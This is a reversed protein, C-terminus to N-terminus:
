SGGENRTDGPVNGPLFRWLPVVLELPWGNRAVSAFLCCLVVNDRTWGRAQNLRDVSVSLPGEGGFEYPLGTYRCLGNQGQHIAALDRATVPVGDFVGRKHARALRGRVSVFVAQAEGSRALTRTKRKPQGKRRGRRVENATRLEAELQKVREVMHEALWSEGKPKHEDTM